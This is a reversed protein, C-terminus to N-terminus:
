PQLEPVNVTSGAIAGNLVAFAAFGNHPGNAAKSALGYRRGPARVQNRSVGRSFASMRIRSVRGVFAGVRPIAYKNVTAVSAGVRLVVSQNLTLAAFADIRCVRSM